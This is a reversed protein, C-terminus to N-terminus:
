FYLSLWWSFISLPDEPSAPGTQFNIVPFQITVLNGQKIIDLTVWFETGDVPLGFSDFLQLQINHKFCEINNNDKSFIYNPSLTAAFFGVWLFISRNFFRM